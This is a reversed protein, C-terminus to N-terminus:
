YFFVKQMVQGVDDWGWEPGDWPSTYLFTMRVSIFLLIFAVSGFSLTVWKSQKIKNIFFAMGPFLLAFYEIFARHGYAGGFWWCWWSSFIYWALAWIVLFVFFTNQKKMAGWFIGILAFAMIPAYIFFGNQSSFLVKGMVAKTWFFQQGIQGYSFLIWKGAVTYWYWMQFFAIFFAAGIMTLVLKYQRIWWTMRPGVERLSNLGYFILALIVIGNNPRIVIILGAILGLMIAGSFTQSEHFRHILFLFLSFLFFSYVHSMGVELTSYYYLNSGFFVGIVSILIVGKEFFNRLFFQIFFLGLALYVSAGIGLLFMYIDSRGDRPYGFIAGLFEAILYFPAQLIAVGIHFINLTNGNELPVAYTLHKLDGGSFIAPLYQYYGEADSWIYKIKAGFPFNLFFTGLCILFFLLAVPGPFSFKEAITKFRM